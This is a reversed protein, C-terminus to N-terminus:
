AEERKNLLKLLQELSLNFLQKQELSLDIARENNDIANGLLKVFASLKLLGKAYEKFKEKGFQKESLMLIKISQKELYRLGLYCAELEGTKFNFIM